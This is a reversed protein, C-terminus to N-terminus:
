GGGTDHPQLTVSINKGVNDNFYDFVENVDSKEYFNGSTDTLLTYEIGNIVVVVDDFETINNHYGQNFYIRLLGDSNVEIAFVQMHGTFEPDLLHTTTDLIYPYLEGFSTLESTPNKYGRLNIGDSGVRMIFTHLFGDGTPQLTSDQKNYVSDLRAEIANLQLIAAQLATVTALDYSGVNDDTWNCVNIISRQAFNLEHKFNANQNANESRQLAHDNDTPM